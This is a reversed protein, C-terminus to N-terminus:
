WGGVNTFLEKLLKNFKTGSMELTITGLLPKIPIWKGDKFRCLTVECPTHEYPISMSDLREGLLPFRDDRVKFTRERKKEKKM